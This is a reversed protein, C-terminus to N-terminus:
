KRNPEDLQPISRYLDEFPSNRTQETLLSAIEGDRFYSGALRSTTTDPAYRVSRIPILKPPDIMDTHRYQTFLSDRDRYLYALLLEYLSRDIKLTMGTLELIHDFLKVMELRQFTYLQKGRDVFEVWLAYVIQPNKILDPNDLFVDGKRLHIVLYPINDIVIEELDSHGINILNLLILNKSYKGDFVLRGVGITSVTDSIDLFGYVEYRRPVHFELHDGIFRVKNGDVRFYKDIDDIKPLSLDTVAM